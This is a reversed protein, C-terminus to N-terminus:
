GVFGFYNMLSEAVKFPELDFRYRLYYLTGNVQLSRELTPSENRIYIKGKGYRVAVANCTSVCVGFHLNGMSRPMHPDTPWPFWGVIQLVSVVRRKSFSELHPFTENAYQAPACAFNFIAWLSWGWNCQNAKFIPLEWVTCTERKFSPWASSCVESTVRSFTRDSGAVALTPFPGHGGVNHM